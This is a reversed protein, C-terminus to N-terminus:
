VNNPISITNDGDLLLKRKNPICASINSNLM